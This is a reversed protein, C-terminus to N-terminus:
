NKKHKFKKKWINSHKFISDEYTYLYTHFKGFTIYVDICSRIISIFIKLHLFLIFFLVSKQLFTSMKKHKFNKKWINSHKFISDAYTNLYTHFKGFTIYMDICSRTISIFIKLHLFLIFFLVSKQLFTSIKKDKFNKKEFTPITYVNLIWIYTTTHSNTVKTNQISFFSEYRVKKFTIYTLFPIFKLCSILLTSIFLASM